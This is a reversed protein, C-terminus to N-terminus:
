TSGNLRDPLLHGVAEHLRRKLHDDIWSVFNRLNMFPPLKHIAQHSMYLGAGSIVQPSVRNALQGKRHKAVFEQMKKSVEPGNDVQTAGCEAIDRLFLWAGPPTDYESPAPEDEGQTVREQM